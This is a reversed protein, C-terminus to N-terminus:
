SSARLKDQAKRNDQSLSGVLIAHDNLDIEKTEHVAKAAALSRATNNAEAALHQHEVEYEREALETAHRTADTEAQDVGAKFDKVSINAM